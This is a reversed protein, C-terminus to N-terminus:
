WGTWTFEAELEPWFADREERDHEDFKAGIAARTKASKIVGRKVLTEKVPGAHAILPMLRRHLADAERVHGSEYLEFMRVFVDTFGAGPMNGAAGRNLERILEQCGHGGFVGWVEPEKADVLAAINQLAPPVEEKVFHVHEIERAMTLIAQRSQAAVGANQIFIPLGAAADIAAFYRLVDAEAYKQVYPPMAIVADAGADRAARAFAAAGQTSSAAVGIVVPCRGDVQEVVVPMMALREADTLTFFESAMVPHVIGHAGAQVSFEVVNRLDDRDIEGDDGFPTQPIVFIGRWTRPGQKGQAEQTTATM